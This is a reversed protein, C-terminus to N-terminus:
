RAHSGTDTARRAAAPRPAATRPRSGFLASRITAPLLWLDMWISRHKLYYLDYRVKETEEEMGNAYGQRVQAWGTLGPRALTRVDYYPIRALLEQHVAPHPRPGVLDMDGCLVNWLQPLEDLHTRRLWRGVRTVRDLNDREWESRRSRATHMTRFKLLDFPRGGAGLRPQRFLIPGGSDIWIALAVIPFIPLALLLAVAAIAVGVARAIARDVGSFRFGEAFLVESPRLCEIALKGTVREYVAHGREVAIGRARAELLAPLPLTVADEEVVVIRNAAHLRIARALRDESIEPMWLVHWGLSPRDDIEALLRHALPGMGVVLVQEARPVAWRITRVLLSLGAAFSLAGGIPAGARLLFTGVAVGLASLCLLVNNSAPSRNASM